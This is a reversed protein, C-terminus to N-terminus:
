HTSVICDDRVNSDGLNNMVEWLYNNCKFGVGFSVMFMTDNLRKKKVLYGKIYYFLLIFPYLGM